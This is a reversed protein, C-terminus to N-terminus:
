KFMNSSTQVRKPSTRQLTRKNSNRQTERKPSTQQLKFSGGKVYKFNNLKSSSM